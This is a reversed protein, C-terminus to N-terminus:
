AATAVARQNGYRVRGGYEYDREAKAVGQGVGTVSFYVFLFGCTMKKRIAAAQSNKQHPSLETM